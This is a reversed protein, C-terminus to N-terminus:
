ACQIFTTNTIYQMNVRRVNRDYSSYHREPDEILKCFKVCRIGDPEDEHTFYINKIVFRNTLEEMRKICRDCPKSNHGNTRVVLIDIKLKKTTRGLRELLKRLAQAEAHETTPTKINFVNTGFSIPIGNIDLIACMHNANFTSKYNSAKTQESRKRILEDRVKYINGSNISM